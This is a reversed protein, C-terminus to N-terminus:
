HLSKIALGQGTPLVIPREPQDTFWEDIAARAANRYPYFGYDDFVILGGPIIRPWFWRCADLTPRYLDMDLHVFSFRADSDVESLTEPVLGPHFQAFPYKALRQQVYELSTNAFDGPAHYDRDPQADPPMGEFTDFLHLTAPQVSADKATQALLHATGGQFVGCEAIDGSGLLGHRCFHHLLYCRDPTVSM